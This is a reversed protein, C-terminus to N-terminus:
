VTRGKVKIEANAGMADFRKEEVECVAHKKTGEDKKERREECQVWRRRDTQCWLAPVSSPTTTHHPCSVGGVGSCLMHIM